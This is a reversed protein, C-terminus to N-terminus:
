LPFFISINSYWENAKPSNLTSRSFNRPVKWNFSITNMNSSINTLIDHPHPINKKDRQSQHLDGTRGSSDGHGDPPMFRECATMLTDHALPLRRSNNCGVQENQIKSLFLFNGTRGTWLNKKLIRIM